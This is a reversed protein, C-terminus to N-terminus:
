PGGDAPDAIQQFDKKINQLTLSVKPLRLGLSRVLSKLHICCYFWSIFHINILKLVQHFVDIVLYLLYMNVKVYM